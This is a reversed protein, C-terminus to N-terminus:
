EHDGEKRLRQRLRQRAEDPSNGEANVMYIKEGLYRRGVAVFPPYQSHHQRTVTITWQDIM